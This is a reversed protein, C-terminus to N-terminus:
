EQPHKDAFRQLAAFYQGVHLGDALAHDAMLTAGLTARGDQWTYKSWQCFPGDGGGANELATYRVWPLCSVVFSSDPIDKAFIGPLTKVREMDEALACLYAAYDAQAPIWSIIFNGDAKMVPYNPLVQEYLAVQGDPLSRCRLQEVSNLAQTVRYMMAAFFSEGRRKCVQVLRTVDIDATVSFRTRQPYFFAYHERRSWNQMDILTYEM